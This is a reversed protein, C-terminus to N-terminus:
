GAGMMRTERTERAQQQATATARVSGGACCRSASKRVLQDADSPRLSLFGWFTSFFVPEFSDVLVRREQSLSATEVTPPGLNTKHNEDIFPQAPPPLTELLLPFLPSTADSAIAPANPFKVQSPPQFNPSSHDSAPISPPPQPHCPPIM